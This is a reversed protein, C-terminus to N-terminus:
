GGSNRRFTGLDRLNQATHGDAPRALLGGRDNFLIIYRAGDFMPMWTASGYQADIFPLWRPYDRKLNFLDPGASGGITYVSRPASREEIIDDYRGAIRDLRYLSPVGALAAPLQWRLVRADVQWADGLLNYHQIREGSGLNGALMLSARFHQPAEQHLEIIAVPRDHFLQLYRHVLLAFATALLALLVLLLGFCRRVLHLRRPQWASLRNDGSGFLM